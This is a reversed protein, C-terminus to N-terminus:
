YVAVWSRYFVRVFFRKSKPRVDLFILSFGAALGIPNKVPIGAIETELIGDDTGFDRPMIGLSLAKIALKQATEPDLFTHLIPMAVWRHIASRSDLHYAVGFTLGFALFVWKLTTRVPRPNKHTFLTRTQVNQQTNILKLRVNTRGATHLNSFTRANLSSISASGFARNSRLVTRVPLM